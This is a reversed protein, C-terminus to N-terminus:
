VDYRTEKEDTTDGDDDVANTPLGFEALSLGMAEAEALLTLPIPEGREVYRRGMGLIRERPEM